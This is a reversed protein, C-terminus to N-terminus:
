SHRLSPCLSASFSVLMCIDMYTSLNGLANMLGVKKLGIDNLDVPGGVGANAVSLVRADEGRAAAAELLPALDIAVRARGYIMLAIAPPLGDETLPAGGGPYAGQCLVLYNIKDVRALLDRAFARVNRMLTGEFPAFEYLSDAHTPFTAIIEDAAAKSRGAIIIHAAGKTHRAFVKAIGMGIRPSILAALSASPAKGCLGIGSTGGMVVM